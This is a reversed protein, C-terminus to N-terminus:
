LKLFDCGDKPSATRFSWKGTKVTIEWLHTNGNGKKRAM